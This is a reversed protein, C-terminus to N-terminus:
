IRKRRKLMLDKNDWHAAAVVVYKRRKAERRITLAMPRTEM